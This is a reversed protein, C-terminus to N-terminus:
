DLHACLRTNTLIEIQVLALHLTQSLLLLVDDTAYTQLFGLKVRKM